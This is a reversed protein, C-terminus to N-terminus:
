VFPIHLKKAIMKGWYAVSDGVIVDPKLEEMEKTLKEDMALTANVILKTSFVIDKGVKDSADTSEEMGLNYDDCRIFTAGAEEIREKFEDFSYYYVEHGLSVLEKVVALTPNTHGYAPICFYVIKRM